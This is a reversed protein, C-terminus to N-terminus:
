GNDMAQKTAQDRTQNEQDVQFALSLRLLFLGPTNRRARFILFYALRNFLRDLFDALFKALQFGCKRLQILDLRELIPSETRIPHISRQM